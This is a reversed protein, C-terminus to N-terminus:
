GAAPLWPTFATTGHPTPALVDRVLALGIGQGDHKTSFFPTFLQQQVAPPRAAGDNEIVVVPPRATARGWVCGDAGIAEPANQGGEAPGAGTPPM